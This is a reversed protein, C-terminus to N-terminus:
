FIYIIYLLKCKLTSFVLNLVLRKENDSTFQIDPMSNKRNQEYKHLALPDDVPPHQLAEYLAGAIKFTDHGYLSPEKHFFEAIVKSSIKRPEHGNTLHIGKIDNTIDQTGPLSSVSGPQAQTKNPSSLLTSDSQVGTTGGVKTVNKMSITRPTGGYRGVSPAIM